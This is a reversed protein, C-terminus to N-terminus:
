IHVILFPVRIYIVGTAKKLCLKVSSFYKFIDIPFLYLYASERNLVEDCSKSLSVPLYSFIGRSWLSQLDQSM